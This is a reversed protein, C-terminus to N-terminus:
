KKKWYYLRCNSFIKTQKKKTKKRSNKATIDCLVTICVNIKFSTLKKM